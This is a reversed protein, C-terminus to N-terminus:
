RLTSEALENRAIKGLAQDLLDAGVEALLESAHQHTIGDPMTYKEQVIVPGADFSSNMRHLTIGLSDIGARFQWFLPVPGRYAPLLSPHLNFCGLTPLSLVNDPLKGALCSVIIIDPKCAEIAGVYADSTDFLTIAPIGASRALMEVSENQSAIVPYKIDNISVESGTEYGIACPKYESQLLFRLPILSLPGSSGLFLINM